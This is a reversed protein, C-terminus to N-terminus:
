AESTSTSPSSPRESMQDRRLASQDRDITRRGARRPPASARKYRLYGCCIPCTLVTPRTPSSLLLQHRDVPEAIPRHRASASRDCARMQRLPACVVRRDYAPAVRDAFRTRQTNVTWDADAEGPERGFSGGHRFRQDQRARVDGRRRALDHLESCTEVRILAGVGFWNEEGTDCNRSMPVTRNPRGSATKVDAVFSSAVFKSMGLSVPPSPRSANSSGVEAGGAGKGERGSDRESSRWGATLCTAEPL